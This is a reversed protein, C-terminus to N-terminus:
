WEERIYAAARNMWDSETDSQFLPIALKKAISLCKDFDSRTMVFHYIPSTRGYMEVVDNGECSKPSLIILKNLKMWVIVRPYNALAYEVSANRMRRGNFFADGFTSDM